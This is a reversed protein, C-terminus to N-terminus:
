FAQTNKAKLQIGITNHPDSYRAKVKKNPSMLCVNEELGLKRM